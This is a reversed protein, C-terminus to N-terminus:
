GAASGTDSAQSKRRALKLHLSGVLFGVLAGIGATVGVQAPLFRLPM